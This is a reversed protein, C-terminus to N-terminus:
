IGVEEDYPQTVPAVSELDARIQAQYIREMDELGRLYTRETDRLERVAHGQTHTHTHTHTHTKHTNPARCGCGCGVGVGVRTVRAKQLKGLIAVASERYLAVRADLDRRLAGTGM